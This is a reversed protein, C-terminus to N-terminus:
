TLFPSKITRSVWRYCMTGTWNVLVFVIGLSFISYARVPSRQRVGKRNMRYREYDNHYWCPGFLRFCLINTAISLIGTSCASVPPLSRRTAAKASYIDLLNWQGKVSATRSSGLLLPTLGLPDSNSVFDTLVNFACYSGILCYIILCSNASIIHFCM